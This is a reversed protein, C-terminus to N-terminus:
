GEECDEAIEEGDNLRIAREAIALGPGTGTDPANKTRYFPEFLKPLESEHVGVGDIGDSPCEYNVNEVVEGLPDPIDSLRKLAGKQKSQTLARSPPLTSYLSNGSIGRFRKYILTNPFSGLRRCAADVLGKTSAPNM